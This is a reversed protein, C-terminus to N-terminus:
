NTRHKFKEFSSSDLPMKDDDEENDFPDLTNLVVDLGTVMKANLTSLAFVTSNKIFKKPLNALTNM